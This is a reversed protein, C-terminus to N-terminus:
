SGRSRRGLMRGIVDNQRKRPSSPATRQGTKRQDSSSRRHFWFSRGGSETDSDDYEFVSHPEAEPAPLPEPQPTPPLPRMCPLSKKSLMVPALPQPKPAGVHGASYRSATESHSNGKTHIPARLGQSTTPRKTKPTIPRPSDQSVAFHAVLPSNQLSRFVYVEEHPRPPRQPKQKVDRSSQWSPVQPATRPPLPLPKPFPSYTAVPKRHRGRSNESLPWPNIRCQEPQNQQQQQPHPSPILAPYQKRPQVDLKNTKSPLWFSDWLETAHAHYQYDDELSVESDTRDDILSPSSGESGLSARDDSFRGRYHSPREPQQPYSYNTVPYYKSVLKLNALKSSPEM